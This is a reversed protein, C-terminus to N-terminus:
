HLDDTVKAHATHRRRTAWLMWVCAAHYTAVALIAWMADTMRIVVWRLHLM